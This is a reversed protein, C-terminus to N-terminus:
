HEFDRGDGTEFAVIAPKEVGSIELEFGEAEFYVARRDACGAVEFIGM